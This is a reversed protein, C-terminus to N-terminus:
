LINPRGEKRSLEKDFSLDLKATTGCVPSLKIAEGWGVKAHIAKKVKTGSLSYLSLPYLLLRFLM